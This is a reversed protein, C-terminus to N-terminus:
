QSARSAGGGGGESAKKHTVKYLRGWELVATTYAFKITGDAKFQLSQVEQSIKRNEVKMAEIGHTFGSGGGDYYVGIGLAPYMGYYTSNSHLRFFVGSCTLGSFGENTFNEPMWLYDTEM